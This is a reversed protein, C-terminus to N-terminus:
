FQFEDNNEKSQNGSVSNNIPKLKQKVSIKHIFIEMFFSQSFEEMLIEMSFIGKSITQHFFNKSYSENLIKWLIITLFLNRDNQKYLINECINEQSLKKKLNANEESQYIKCFNNM